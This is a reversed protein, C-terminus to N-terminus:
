STGQSLKFRHNSNNGEKHRSYYTQGDDCTHVIVTCRVLLDGCMDDEGSPYWCIKSDGLSKYDELNNSRKNNIGKDKQISHAFCVV